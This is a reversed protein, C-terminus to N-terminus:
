DWFLCMAYHGQEGLTQTMETLMESRRLVRDLSISLLCARTSERQIVPMISRQFPSQTFASKRAERIVTVEYGQPVIRSLVEVQREISLIIDESTDRYKQGTPSTRAFIIVRVIQHEVFVIKLLQKLALITPHMVDANIIRNLQYFLRLYHSMQLGLEKSNRLSAKLGDGVEVSSLWQLERDGEVHEQLQRVMWTTSSTKLSEQVMGLDEVRRTLRDAWATLIYSEHDPHLGLWKFVHDRVRREDWGHKVSSCHEFVVTIKDHPSLQTLISPWSQIILWLQRGLSGGLTATGSKRLWIVILRQRRPESPDSGETIVQPITGQQPRSWRRNDNLCHRLEPSIYKTAYSINTLGDTRFVPGQGKQYFVPFTTLMPGYATVYDSRTVLDLARKARQVLTEQLLANSDLDVSPLPLEAMLPRKPWRDWRTQSGLHSVVTSIDSHNLRMCYRLYTSIMLLSQYSALSRHVQLQNQVQVLSLSAIQPRSSADLPPQQLMQNVRSGMARDLRISPFSDYGIGVFLTHDHMYAYQTEKKFSYVRELLFTYFDDPSIPREVVLEHRYVCGPLPLCQMSFRIKTCFHMAAESLLSAITKKIRQALALFPDSDRQVDEGKSSEDFPADPDIESWEFLSSTGILGTPNSPATPYSAERLSPPVDSLRDGGLTLSSHTIPSSSCVRKSPTLPPCESDVDQMLLRSSRPRPSDPNDFLTQETRRKRKPTQPGDEPWPLPSKHAQRLANPGTTEDSNQPQSHPLSPSHNSRSSSPSQPAM